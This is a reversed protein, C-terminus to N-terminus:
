DSSHSRLRNAIEEEIQRKIPNIESELESWLKRRERFDELEHSQELGDNTTAIDLSIKLFKEKMDPPLFIGNLLIYNHFDQRANVANGLHHWFIEDHFQRAKQTANRVKEKQTELLETNVLFEELEAKSMKDINPLTQVPSALSATQSYALSLRRWTEPLIEFEKEQLRLRGSLMSDIKVKLRQLELAQQHRVEELRQAFKNEIWKEGLFRFIAYAGSGGMITPLFIKTILDAFTIDM